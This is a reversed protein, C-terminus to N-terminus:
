MWPRPDTEVRHLLADRLAVAEDIPLMGISIAGAATSILVTGLDRRREFISQSVAISNTKRPLTLQTERNIVKTSRSLGSGFTWRLNRVHVRTLWWATVAVIPVVPLSWWGVVFFAFGAIVTALVTTNRAIPWASAPAITRETGPKISREPQALLLVTQWQRDDCGLFDLNGEGVTSLNVSRLGAARQLPNQSSSVVQIRDISSTTSTRSLLGATRRLSTPTSRLTLDWDQIFVRITNLIVSFLLFAVFILPIWWWSPTSPEIEPLSGPILEGFDDGFAILPGLVIWGALPWATVAAQLLREAGHSFVIQEDTAQPDSAGEDAVVPMTQRTIVAQRQLEEAMQRTVADITFEVESSGATDVSVKVLGTLRHLLQQDIAVSQIRDVPVTLRDLRFVGRTVVLEGDVLMFTYRWWALASLAGLGLIALFPLGILAGDLPAQSVLLFLIILQALGLSLVIRIGLFVIALPSQRQPTTLDIM